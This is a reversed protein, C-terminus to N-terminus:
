ACPSCSFGDFLGDFALTERMWSECAGDPRGVFQHSLYPCSHSGYRNVGKATFVFLRVVAGKSLNGHMVINVVPCIDRIGNALRNEGSLIDEGGVTVPILPPVRKNSVTQSPM